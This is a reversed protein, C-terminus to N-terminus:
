HTNDAGNNTDVIGPMSVAFMNNAAGGVEKLVTVDERNKNLPLQLAKAEMNKRREDQVQRMAAQEAPNLELLRQDMGFWESNLVQDVRWRRLIDPELLHTELKKM